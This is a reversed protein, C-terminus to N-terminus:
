KFRTLPQFVTLTLSFETRGKEKESLAKTVNLAGDFSSRYINLVRRTFSEEKM